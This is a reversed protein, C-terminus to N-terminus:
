QNGVKLCDLTNYIPNIRDSIIPLNDPNEIQVYDAVQVSFPIAPVSDQLPKAILYDYLDKDNLYQGGVIYVNIMALVEMLEMVDGNPTYGVAKLQKLNTTQKASSNDWMAQAMAYPVLPHKKCFKAIAKARRDFAAKDKKIVTESFKFM